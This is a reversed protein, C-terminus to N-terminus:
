FLLQMVRSAGNPCQNFDDRGARLDMHTHVDVAGPMVFQKKADIYKVNELFNESTGLAAIKGNQILIDANFSEEETIITGNKIVMDMMGDGIEIIKIFSEYDCLLM